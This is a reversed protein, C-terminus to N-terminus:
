LMEYFRLTQSDNFRLRTITYEFARHWEVNSEILSNYIQVATAMLLMNTMLKEQKTNHPVTTQKQHIDSYNPLKTARPQKPDGYARPFLLM